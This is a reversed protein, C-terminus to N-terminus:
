QNPARRVAFASPSPLACSTGQELRELAASFDSYLADTAATHCDICLGVKLVRAQEESNLSRCDERTCSGPKQAGLQTWVGAVVGKHADADLRFDPGSLGLVLRGPGLGLANASRHCSVCTRSRRTTAHPDLPAFLQTDVHAGDSSDLSMLMGPVASVVKERFVALTPEAWGQGQNEETWAGLTPRGLAFSWQVKEPAFGTHCTPCTPAATSHCATCSLRLHGPMTHDADAPTQGIAQIRDDVKGRLFWGEDVQFVNWLPTGRLGTRVPEALRLPLGRASLIRRSVADEAVGWPSELRGDVPGHCSECAVEVQDEKHNYRAADGMLETHLHCDICSMGAKAHVDPETVCVTRGDPLRETEKCDRGQEGSVEYWGVYSLSLRGSRSHCGFCQTDSARVEVAPHRGLAKGGGSLIHCASCGSGVAQIADDRNNRRTGLHCGGCLKSLHDEAPTPTTSTLVEAMTQTDTPRELEGFAWRDVAVLGAATTMLTNRVRHSTDPHCGVQGCTREVTDLAGPERELGRHAREKDYALPNGLHCPSCGLAEPAHAGSPGETLAPHCKLCRETRGGATEPGSGLAQARENERALGVLLAVLITLGGLVLVSNRYFPNM